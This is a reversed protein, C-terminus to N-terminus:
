STLYLLVLSGRPVSAGGAPSHSAVLDERRIEGELKLALVEFGARELARRADDLPQRVVGPVPTAPAPEAGTSVNLQVTDGSRRETGAPQAQAVVRGQAEGSPVYRAAVRLGESAFTRAAEALELGVADPVTAPEPERAVNLRVESGAQARTGASPVQGVVTGAPQDSRVPALRVDFGADRLANTADSATMGVVEPVRVASPASTTAADTTTAPGTTTGPGTTTEGRDRGASVVLRVTDDREVRTGAEPEQGVVVGEPDSHEVRREVDAELGTEALRDRARDERLGVLLPVEVQERTTPTAEPEDDGTLLWAAALGALVLVLLALLWPWLTPRRPRPPGPPDASEYVRTEAEWEDAM